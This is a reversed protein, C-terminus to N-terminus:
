ALRSYPFLARGFNQAILRPECDALDSFIAFGKSGFRVGSCKYILTSHNNPVVDCDGNSFPILWFSLYLSNTIDDLPGFTQKTILDKCM